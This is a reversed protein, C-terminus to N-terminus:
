EVVTFRQETDVGFEIQSGPAAGVGLPNRRWRRVSVRDMGPLVDAGPVDYTGPDPLDLAEFGSELRVDSGAATDPRGWTVTLPQGAVVSMGTNPREIQHIGPGSITTEGLFDAGATVSIRASFGYPVYFGTYTSPDSELPILQTQIAPPAPNIRVQGDTVPVGEKSLRVECDVRLGDADAANNPNAAVCEGVILLTASGPGIPADAPGTGADAPDGDGGGGGCGPSVAAGALVLVRLWRDVKPGLM